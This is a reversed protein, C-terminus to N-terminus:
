ESASGESLMSNLTSIVEKAQDFTLKDMEAVGFNQQLWEAFGGSDWALTGLLSGIAKAQAATISVPKNVAPASTDAKIGAPNQVATWLEKFYQKTRSVVSGIVGGAQLEAIVLDKAYAMVMAPSDSKPKSIAGTAPQVATAPTKAQPNDVKLFFGNGCVTCVARKWPRGTKQSVGQKIIMEGGCQKCIM